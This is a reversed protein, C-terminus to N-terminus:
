RRAAALHQEGTQDVAVHVRAGAARQAVPERQELPVRQVGVPQAATM